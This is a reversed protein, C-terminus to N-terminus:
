EGRAKAIVARAARFQEVQWEPAGIPMGSRVFSELAELLEPAAAILAKKTQAKKACDCCRVRRVTGDDTTEGCDACFGDGTNADIGHQAAFANIAVTLWAAFENIEAARRPVAPVTMGWARAHKVANKLLEVREAVTEAGNGEFSGWVTWGKLGVVASAAYHFADQATGGNIETSTTM